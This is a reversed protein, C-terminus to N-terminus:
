EIKLMMFPAAQTGAALYSLVHGAHQMHQAYADSDDQVDVSGDHRFVLQQNLSTGVAAQPDIFTVGRVLGWGYPSASVFPAMPQAIFAHNGGGNGTRVDCFPSAFIEITETSATVAANLVDEVTLAITGGNAITATNSIIRCRMITADAHWVIVYGDALYDAAIVGDGAIGDTVGITGYIVKAGIASTTPVAIHGSIQYNYGWGARQTLVSSGGWKCYRYRNGVTDELLTGYAYLKTASIATIAQKLKTSFSRGYLRYQEAM